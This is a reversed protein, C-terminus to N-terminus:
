LFYGERVCAITGVHHECRLMESLIQHSTEPAIGCHHCSPLPFPRSSEESAIISLGQLEESNVSTPIASEEKNLPASQPSDAASTHGEASTVGGTVRLIEDLDFGIDSM